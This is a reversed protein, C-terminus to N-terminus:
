PFYPLKLVGLLSKFILPIIFITLTLLVIIIFAIIAIKNIRSLPQNKILKKTAILSMANLSIPSFYLILSIIIDVALTPYFEKPTCGSDCSMSLLLINLFFLSGGYIFVLFALFVYQFYLFIKLNIFKYHSNM